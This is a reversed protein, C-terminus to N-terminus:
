AWVADTEVESASPGCETMLPAEPNRFDISALALYNHFIETNELFGRFRGSGPGMAVLPVFDATHEGSTWGVGYHNGLLQGLQCSVSNMTDYLVWGKKRFFSALFVAKADSVAYGTGERIIKQLRGPEPNSGLRANMAEFSARADRLRMYPAPNTGFSGGSSNLGANGTGHDTTVVVLTDPQQQQFELCAVLADDFALVDHVAAAIDNAHAAHDVRGGEVQLIFRDEGGLKRLAVRTMDALTPVNAKLKADALHDITYPLHGSSFTGLLPRDTPAAALGAANAVVTYGAGRFAAPLDRKDKRKDPAFYKSGGGLLVEVRRDLYQAAISEASDRQANAAFGAPTAHTIETTTVLGRKWGAQAFLRYLPQLERGDPLVNLMGNKVRSGSGWSSSAAASDTVVSNLSRMNVFATCARPDRYLDIWRLSRGRVLRSFYDGLTLTGSSTGDAVLHIIRRPTDGPASALSGGAARALRPTGAGAATVALGAGKLFRRRSTLM